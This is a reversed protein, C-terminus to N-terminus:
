RAPSAILPELADLLASITRASQPDDSTAELEAIELGVVEHAAIVACAEQLDELTLGDPVSYETPVIGPELV